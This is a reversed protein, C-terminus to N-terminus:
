FICKFFNFGFDTTNIIGKTMKLKGDKRDEIPINTNFLIEKILKYQKTYHDATLWVDEKCNIIGLSVLNDLNAENGPLINDNDTLVLYPSVQRSGRNVDNYEVKLFGFPLQYGRQDHIIQLTEADMSSIQSLITPFRPSIVENKRNDASSAILNAFMTRLDDESIAYQAEEITKMLLGRNSTDRNEEPIKQLREATKNALDQVEAEKIIKFRIPKQFIWYFIGGIGQGLSDAIPNLLKNVPESPLNDLWNM